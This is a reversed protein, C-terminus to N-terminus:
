QVAEKKIVVSLNITVPYASSAGADSSSDGTSISQFHVDSFIDSNQFANKLAIADNYNKARATLTTATGFTASDLNLNDLVVGSPLLNSIKLIVSTYTVDKDLIQKAISLNSKFQEAQSKVANFGAVKSENDSITQEASAKATRFYIYVGGIALFMFAVACLLLINYRVLLTNTRAARIQRKDEPPLLNIM